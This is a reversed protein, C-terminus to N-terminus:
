KHLHSNHFILEHDVFLQLIQDELDLDHINTDSSLMIVSRPIMVWQRTTQKNDHTITREQIPVAAISLIKWVSQLQPLHPRSCHSYDNANNYNMNKHFFQKTWLKCLAEKQFSLHLMVTTCTLLCTTAVCVLTIGIELM